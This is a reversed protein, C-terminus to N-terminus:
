VVILSSDYRVLPEAGKETARYVDEFRAAGKGPVYLLSHGISITMDRRLEFIMHEPFITPFPKEEFALGIGHSIGRVQYEGLGKTKLSEYFANDLDMVKAGIKAADVASQKAAVFAESIEVLEQKPKGVHFLRTLNGCYGNYVPSVDVLVPDGPEIKRRTAMGHIGLSRPGSNVFSGFSLAEAGKRRIEHEIEAAVEYEHAGAKIVERAREMGFTAIRQAMALNEIEGSSKVIRQQMLIDSADKITVQPNALKFREVLFAPLHFDFNAGLVPREKGTDKMLHMVAVMMEHMATYPRVDQIWSSRKVDEVDGAFALITPQGEAPIYARPQKRLDGSYYFYNALDFILIGDLREGKMLRQLERTRDEYVGTM